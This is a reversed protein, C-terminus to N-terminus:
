QKKEVRAAKGIRSRMYYLKARRVKGEKILKIDKILPSYLPLIKEVGIGGDGIKRITFTSANGRKNIALVDGKFKQIREKKGEIIRLSVELEDGINFKPFGRDVIGINKITEKTYGKAKVIIGKIYNLSSLRGKKIYM